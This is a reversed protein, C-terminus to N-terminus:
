RQQKVMLNLRLIWKRILIFLLILIFLNIKKRFALSLSIPNKFYKEISQTLETQAYKSFADGLEVQKGFIKFNM